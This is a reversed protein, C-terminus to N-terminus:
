APRRRDRRPGARYSSRPLRSAVGPRCAGSCCCCCCYYCCCYYCYRSLRTMADLPLQTRERPWDSAAGDAAGSPPTSRRPLARRRLHLRAQDYQGCRHDGQRSAAALFLASYGYSTGLELIRRAGRAVALAHLFRAADEGVALAARGADAGHLTRASTRFERGHSRGYGSNPGGPAPEIIAAEM